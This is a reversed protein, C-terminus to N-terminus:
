KDGGLKSPTPYTLISRAAAVGDSGAALIVRLDQFGKPMKARDVTCGVAQLEDRWARAAKMGAENPDPMVRVHHGAIAKLLATEAAFTSGCFHAALFHWRRAKGECLWQCAVAEFLSITGETIFVMEEPDLRRSHNLSFFGKGSSGKANDSKEGHHFPSGDLNRYQRHGRGDTRGDTLLVCGPRSDDAMIRANQCGIDVAALPLNRLRAFAGKEPGTLHRPIPWKAQVTAKAVLDAAGYGRRAAPAKALSAPAKIASGTTQRRDDNKLLYGEPASAKAADELKHRLDSDSWPPFAKTENWRALLAFAEPSPLSFGKTLTRAVNFIATHGSAGQTSPPM